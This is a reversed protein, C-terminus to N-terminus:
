SGAKKGAAQWSPEHQKAQKITVIMRVEGQLLNCLSSDMPASLWCQKGAPRWPGGSSQLRM